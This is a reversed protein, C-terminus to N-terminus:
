QQSCYNMYIENFMPNLAKVCSLVSCLWCASSRNCKHGEPEAHASTQNFTRPRTGKLGSRCGQVCGWQAAFRILWVPVMSSLQSRLAEAEQVKGSGKWLLVEGAKEIQTEWWSGRWHGDDLLLLRRSVANEQGPM